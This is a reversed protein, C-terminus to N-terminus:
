LPQLFTDGELEKKSYILHIFIIQRNMELYGLGYLSRITAKTQDAGFCFFGRDPAIKKALLAPTGAM